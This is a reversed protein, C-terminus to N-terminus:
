HMLTQSHSDEPSQFCSHSCHVDVCTSERFTFHTIGLPFHPCSFDPKNTQKNKLLVLEALDMKMKPILFYFFFGLCNNLHSHCALLCVFLYLFFLMPSSFGLLSLPLIYSPFFVQSAVLHLKQSLPTSTKPDEIIFIFVDILSYCSFPQNLCFIFFSDM